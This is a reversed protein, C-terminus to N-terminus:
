TRHGKLDAMCECSPHPNSSSGLLSTRKFNSKLPANIGREHKPSTGVQRIPINSDQVSLATVVKGSLTLTRWRQHKGPDHDGKMAFISSM